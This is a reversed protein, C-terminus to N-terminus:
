KQSRWRELYPLIQQMQDRAQDYTVNPDMEAWGKAAMEVMGEMTLDPNTFRGNQYCFRCYKQSLSGDVERGFDEDKALPM